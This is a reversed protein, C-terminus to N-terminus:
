QSKLCNWEEIHYDAVPLFEINFKSGNVIKKLTQGHKTKLQEIVEPHACIKIDSASGNGAFRRIEREIDICISDVDKIVGLGRCYPCEGTVMESISEKDRERTMQVLGIESVPLVHIRAKDRKLANELEDMLKRQNEKLQMDIFDIIIIGGMNRLRLQRAIERAAELNTTLITNEVDNKGMHRGTNIDIAVLAETQEIVIYGGCKMWIKKKYAKEIEKECNYAQFIPVDGEYLEIKTQSKPLYASIYKTLKEFEKKSDIVIKDIDDTLADRVIRKLLDKESHILTPKDADRFKKYVRRWMYRLLKLDKDCEDVTKNHSFTRMIIGTNKSLKLEAAIKTAHERAQKDRIRRSVGRRQSKPLFVVYKGPLSINTSLRPGKSGISDKVVQVIIDDGTKIYDEIKKNKRSKPQKIEDLEEADAEEYVVKDETIDSIHLFGNKRHGINIFAAQIGPLVKLVKGRYINGTLRQNDPRELYYEELIGNEVFCIRREHEEINVIIEKTM